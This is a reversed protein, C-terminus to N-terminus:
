LGIAVGSAVGAGSPLALTLSPTSTTSFPPEYVLISPTLDSAAGNNAVYLNGESDLALM